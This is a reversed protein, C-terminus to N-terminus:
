GGATTESSLGPPAAMLALVKIMQGAKPVIERSHQSVGNVLLGPTEGAAVPRITIEYDCDRFQRRVTVPGLHAPVCPNVVLGRFGPRVGLIHQTIAVYNWAATGTLWSNKAEGHRPAAKGAIMQAYVYPELRHVEGIAERWAPAIRTYLDYAREANGLMTEAIIIWPNNHCFIGGNEKYGPPYSSVEGLELHYAAHPPDQLVMGHPTALHQYVADLARRAFGDEHGIGAMACWGQSEIYIKGDECEPSGVKHGYFDYARLFWDPERGHADVAATMEEASSRVLAAEEDRGLSALLEAFEGCAYVFLGAIMLSEATRGERNATTQFPEGPTESFCNLNLCDNWDARGILPLGHPGLNQLTFRWSRFLHEMLPEALAEENEFPVPEELIAFDGTERLYGGVGLILWLPDDNFDGGIEANGRKTLPQYQHYAGGDRLQTAAIDLIRERARGPIQHVFGLLDQNSDRFGMGRGVGSEFYSASRSLNFTVMCQYPNWINVMRELRPDTCQVQYPALLGDWSKALVRLADDVAASTALRQQQARALSKNLVGPAEWKAEKPNEVYGLVFVCDQEAGDELELPLCFSACPSWGSAISNAGAGEVVARPRELSGYPGVFSERDSDFSEPRTASHYYSFHNRRERYETKHYITGDEVEVEGISLNRQFNRDDEAADWLCFELFTILQLRRQRGSRNRVRVRHVEASEGPPVLFTLEVEIGGFSSEIVTYGLGHRCRYADLSRRVPQWSPSWFEGSEADRLYFYRGNSDLPINNYRYRTLRRLRADRYFAYGGGTNSILGFFEENGLYNIWPLPPDPQTIVYERREDDFHGFKM